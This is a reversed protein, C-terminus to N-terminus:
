VREVQVVNSLSIYPLVERPRTWVGRGRAKAFHHIVRSISLRFILMRRLIQIGHNHSLRQEFRYCGSGQQNCPLNQFWQRRPLQRFSWVVSALADRNPRSCTGPLHTKMGIDPAPLALALAIASSKCSRIVGLGADDPGAARDQGSKQTWPITQVVAPALIM